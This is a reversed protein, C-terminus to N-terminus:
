QMVSCVHGQLVAQGARATSGLVMELGNEGCRVIATGQRSIGAGQCCQFQGWPSARASVDENVQQKTPWPQMPGTGAGASFLGGQEPTVPSKEPNQWDRPWPEAGLM